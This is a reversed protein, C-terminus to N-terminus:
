EAAKTQADHIARWVKEPSAPMSMDTVGLPSLADVVANILAPPSAIAGAEGCGKVGLDNHTCATVTYDVNLAPFDDARPMCYDMYSATLLQGNEDYHANEMLAQGVGQAIGGHVQGEVIMPNILNGFDDCCAWDVLEVVGTAPDIEVEAIHTGSPYTFNLPDYFATEELGPELRDHPFNHPVYASLAIEGFSKEKDTGAVTFKGDKFELDADAAELMHAAIIKGKEIVKDLAKSIATGGVALSRSGYTGMGFPIRDTDGHVIDVNGIPIGLKEAVIQAFTTDHGQGHSHAGTFVSVTGTPDVRVVASEYLGVRGGLAGVVASPAIGCAEIYSSLGIGRYKGRQAAESRRKEFGKYNIMELARDLPAEYDGIDYQLAVATQYPFADKPIFNIRRFEAPDMGVQRAAYDMTRELLYTAEPRGAGRYADVNVTTTCVGKVNTYIAPINYCGSLLTGHLYTPTVMSFASLYAGLNALTDVRLGVIKNDQDLGIKVKNVHDRGHADGLFAESRDATWKIPRRLKKTAWTCVAEEPYIYIKSGFGGGVDPAVVHLKSEPIQMMFAAMVLRTLHPNQSTTYLTYSENTEDYEAVAARPEMANPIVRNNTVTLEVIKAASELASATVSEDGLEWDFYVNDDMEDHIQTNGIATSLDVVPPLVDLDITIKEAASRAQELSEAIVVAIHDGVYRVKSHALLPHPPEKPASGDRNTPTWGCIPGGVGDAVIDDGTYVAAVGDCTLAKSVDIKKITAHAVNSRMFFAYLQGARNIDDTYRGKGTTYKKDEKRRVSAGIGEAIGEPM